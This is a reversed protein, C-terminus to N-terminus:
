QPVSYRQSAEVEEALSLPWTPQRFFEPRTQQYHRYRRVFEANAKSNPVALEPYRRVAERQSEEVSMYKEFEARPQSPTPIATPNPETSTSLEDGRAVGDGAKATPTPRMDALHPIGRNSDTVADPACKGFIFAVAIAIVLGVVITYGRTDCAVISGGCRPCTRSLDKGRPFWTYGCDKCANQARKTFSLRM